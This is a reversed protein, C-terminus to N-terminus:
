LKSIIEARKVKYEEETIIGLDFKDKLMALAQDPSMDVVSVYTSQARESVGATPDNLAAYLILAAYLLIPLLSTFFESGEYGWEPYKKNYESMSVVNFIRGLASFSSSLILMIKSKKSGKVILFIAVCLMIGAVSEFLYELFDSDVKKIKGMFLNTLINVSYYAGYSWGMSMSVTAFVVYPAASQKKYITIFYVGLLIIPILSAIQYVVYQWRVHEETLMMIFRLVVFALVLIAIPIRAKIENKKFENM